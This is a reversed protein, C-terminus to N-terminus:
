NACRQCEGCFLASSMNWDGAMLAMYYPQGASFSPFFCNQLMKEMAHMGIQKMQRAPNKGSITTIRPGDKVSGKISHTVAPLFSVPPSARTTLEQALFQRWDFRAPNADVPIEDPLYSKTIHRHGTAKFISNDWIIACDHGDHVSGFQRPKNPGAAFSLGYDHPSDDTDRKNVLWNYWWTNIETLLCLEVPELLASVQQTLEVEYARAAARNTMFDPAGGGLNMSSCRIKGTPVKQPSALTGQPSALTKNKVWPADLFRPYPGYPSKM